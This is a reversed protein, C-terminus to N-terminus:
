VWREGVQLDVIGNARMMGHRLCIVGGVGNVAYGKNYRSNAKEM